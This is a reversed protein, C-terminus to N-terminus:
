RSRERRERGRQVAHAHLVEAVCCTLNKAASINLSEDPGHANAGPGCLGSILFQARPFRQHLLNVFPIAGGCGIYRAAKGFHKISANDCAKALWPATPPANWGSCTSGWDLSVMAGYPPNNTLLDSIKRKAAEVDLGPPFRFSLELATHTRLLHARDDLAPLGDQALVALTPRWTNNILLETPDSTVPRAGDVFAYPAVVQDGLDAAAELLQEYRDDPVQVHLWEPVLIGTEADEVRALLHRIIRFSSPVIGSAIGCHHPQNLIDVRLTGDVVARLSSTVWLQDYNGAGSDLAVVLSPRGIRDALHDLYESLGISGSEECTEFVGILRAHRGGFRRIGELAILVSFLAYGDDVAGRGYLRDGDRFASWAETGKRWGKGWPQKDLHGYFVVTEDPGSKDNSPVEVLLLPSVDNLEVVEVIAGFLDRSSAWDRAVEVADHLSGAERWTPDFGPSLAPIRLFTELASIADNEWARDVWGGLADRDFRDPTM